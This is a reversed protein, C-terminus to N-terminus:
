TDAGDVSVSSCGQLREERQRTKQRREMQSVRLGQNRLFGSGNRLHGLQKQQAGVWGRPEEEMMARTGPSDRITYEAREGMLRLLLFELEERHGLAWGLVPYVISVQITASPFCNSSHGM